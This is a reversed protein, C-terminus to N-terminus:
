DNCMLVDVITTKFDLLCQVFALFLVVAKASMYLCLVYLKLHGIDLLYRTPSNASRGRGIRWICRCFILFPVFRASEVLFVLLSLRFRARECLFSPRGFCPFSRACSQSSAARTLQRTGM